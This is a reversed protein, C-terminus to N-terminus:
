KNSSWFSIVVVYYFGLVLGLFQPPTDWGCDRVIAFFPGLGTSLCIGVALSVALAAGLTSGLVVGTFCVWGQLPFLEPRPPDPNPIVCGLSFLGPAGRSVRLLGM